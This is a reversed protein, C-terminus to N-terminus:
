RDQFANCASLPCLSRWLYCVLYAQWGAFPEMGRVLEQRNPKGPLGKLRQWANLLGADGYPISSLVQMSKMMTYRATWEGVGRIAVLRAFMAEPELDALAAKSLDGAACRRAIGLLYEAKKGSFQFARLDALTAEALKVPDPFAYFAAGDHMLKTGYAEVLRRKLRYAFSLNIQQGTVSWCLCEFLNPIGILRLGHYRAALQAFHADRQLLGYFPAIDRELDLWETLYKGVAQWQGPSLAAPYLADVRLYTPEDTIRVLATFGDLPLLKTIAEGELRHLCDDYGRDLFWRCEAFRFLGPKPIRSVSFPAQM